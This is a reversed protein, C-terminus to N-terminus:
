YCSKQQSMPRGPVEALQPWVRYGGVGLIAVAKRQCGDDDSMPVERRIEAPQPEIM